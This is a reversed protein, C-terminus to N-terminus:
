REEELKAEIKKKLEEDKTLELAKQWQEKAEKDKGLKSYVDGLHDRIEGNEPALYFTKKLQVLAEDYKKQKYLIWGYTDIYSANKPEKKLTEKSLKQANTLKVGQKAWLFALSNKAKTSGQAIAKKCWFEVKPFDEPVGKGETYMFALMEQADLDGRKAAKLFWFAAEKYDKFVGKGELYLAGIIRQADLNGRKAAKLFWFAAEKYDKKKYDYVGVNFQANAYNSEAAKKYWFLAKQPNHFKTQSEYVLAINFQAEAKGKEAAKKYCDIAKQLNKDCGQGKFYMNGLNFQANTHGRNALETYLRVAEFDNRSVGQGTAYLVAL